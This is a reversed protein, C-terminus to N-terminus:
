ADSGGLDLGLRSGLSLVKQKASEFEFFAVDEAIPRLDEHISTQGFRDMMGSALEQAALDGASLLRILNVLDNRMAQPEVQHVPQVTARAREGMRPSSARAVSRLVRDLARRHEAVLAEVVDGDEDRLASELRFSAEYLEHAGILGASGKVSHVFEKVDRVDGRRWAEEIAGAQGEYQHRFAAFVKELVDRSGSARQLAEDFDIGDLDEPLEFTSATSSREPRKVTESRPGVEVWPILAALLEVRDVPKSVHGNMGAEFCADRTDARSDASMALVPLEALAPLERLKRTAEFGDMEPMHLDMLVLDFSKESVIRLAEGGDVAVEVALGAEELISRAVLQNAENDEVVLVRAGRIGRLTSRLEPPIGNDVADPGAGGLAVRIADYLVDRRVPKTLVADATEIMRPPLTKARDLETALLLCATGRPLLGLDPVVDIARVGRAPWDALVVPYAPDATQLRARAEESTAAPTPEYGWSALRQCLTRRAVPHGSVVLVREGGGTRCPAESERECAALRLDFWFMSGGDGDSHVRLRGGMVEVLRQCLALGLGQGLSRKGPVRFETQRAEFYAEISAYPFGDGSDLVEFRVEAPSSGQRQMSLRVVVVGRQTAAVANEALNFLLQEIRLPDGRLRRPVDPEVVVLLELGKSSASPGIAGTVNDLMRAVDFDVQEVEIKHAELRSLDLVDNITRLLSRASARIREVQARIDAGLEARLCAESMGLIANMPTRIEHSMNALFESKAVAADRAADRAQVLAEEAAAREAIEAQLMENSRRLRRENERNERGLLRISFTLFGFGLVGANAHLVAYAGDSVQELPPVVGFEALFWAAVVGLALGHGIRRESATILISALAILPFLLVQYDSRPGLIFANATCGAFGTFIAALRGARHAGSWVLGTSVLWLLAMTATAVAALELGAVAYIPAYVLALATCGLVIGNTLRVRKTLPAAANPPLGRDLLRDFWGASPAEVALSVAPEPVSRAPETREEWAAPPPVTDLRHPVSGRGEGSILGMIKSLLASVSIPKSLFDDMGAALCRIRTSEQADATMALIPLRSTEPQARLVAAAALGDLRPMHVDMLVLDHMGRSAERVAEEGDSVLTVRLGADELIGRAVERNAEDDEAVLVRAGLIRQISPMFGSSEYMGPSSAELGRLSGLTEILATARIPKLLIGEFGSQSAIGSVADLEQPAVMVAKPTGALAPNDSLMRCLDAGGSWDTLVLAFPRDATDESAVVRDAETRNRVAVAEIGLWALMSCLAELTSVSDHVVLVRIGQLERARRKTDEDEASRFTADFSFRSGRGVESDVRVEGHMLEVLSKSITLGLGSGGFRRTTSGDAQVFSNFLKSTLHAPIGIGTDEVVFELRVTNEDRELLRVRVTVKGEPTFKVANNALNTLVQGLRLPDGRLTRPVNPDVLVRFDLGKASASDAILDTLRDLVEWLEFRVEALEIERAEIRSLDLIDDVIGLLARSSSRVRQIYERVRPELANHAVLRSLGIITNMPTRIEHSMGALLDDKARNARLAAANADALQREIQMRARVQQQLRTNFQVLRSEAERHARLSKQTVFVLGAMILVGLEFRLFSVLPGSHGLVAWGELLGSEVLAWLSFAAMVHLTPVYREKGPPEFLAVQAALLFALHAGVEPGAMVVLAITTSLGAVHQIVRGASVRGRHMLAGAVLFGACGAGTIAAARPFGAVLFLIAHFAVLVLSAVNLGFLYRRLEEEAEDVAVGSPRSFRGFLGVWTSM